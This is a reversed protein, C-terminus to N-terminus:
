SATSCKQVTISLAQCVWLKLFTALSVAETLQLNQVKCLPIFIVLKLGNWFEIKRLSAINIGHLQIEEVYKKCYTKLKLHMISYALYAM